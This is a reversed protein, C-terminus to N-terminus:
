LTNASNDVEGPFASQSPLVNSISEPCAIQSRLVLLFWRRVKGRVRFGDTSECVLAVFLSLLITSIDGAGLDGEGARTYYNDPWLENPWVGDDPSLIQTTTNGQRDLWPGKSYFSPWPM